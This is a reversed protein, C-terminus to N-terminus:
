LFSSRGPNLLHKQTSSARLIKRTEPNNLLYELDIEVPRGYEDVVRDNHLEYQVGVAFQYVTPAVQEGIVQYTPDVPADAAQLLRNRKRMVMRRRRSEEESLMILVINYPSRGRWESPHTLSIHIVEAPCNPFM